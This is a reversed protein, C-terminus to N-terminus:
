HQNPTRTGAVGRIILKERQFHSLIDEAAMRTSLISFSKGFLIKIVADRIVEYREEKEFFGQVKSAELLEEYRIECAKAYCEPCLQLCTGDVDEFTKLHEPCFYKECYLEGPGHEGGCAYSLGRNIKTKCGMADCRAPFGYGINRGDSDKGCNSWSM